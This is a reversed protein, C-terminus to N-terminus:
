IDIFYKQSLFIYGVVNYPIGFGYLLVLVLPYM